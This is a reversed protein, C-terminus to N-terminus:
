KTELEEIKTELQEVAQNLGEDTLFGEKNLKKLEVIKAKLKEIDTETIPSKKIEEKKVAEHKVQKEVKKPREIAKVDEVDTVEPGKYPNIDKITSATYAEDGEGQTYDDLNLEVWNGIFDDPDVGEASFTWGLAKLIKTIASNPTMATQYEGEVWKKDKGFSKYMHYVFKSIIVPSLEKDDESAQYLMPAVPADTNPDSKYVAFEFILQQGFKGVKPNGDKDAFLEVKLLKGPYYGKKIHPKNGFSSTKDSTPLKM